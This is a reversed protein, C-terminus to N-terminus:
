PSSALRPGAGCLRQGADHRGVYVRRLPASLPSLAFIGPFFSLIHRGRLNVEEKVLDM